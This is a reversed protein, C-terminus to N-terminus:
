YDDANQDEDFALQYLWQEIHAYAVMAHVDAGNPAHSTVTWAFEFMHDHSGFWKQCLFTFYNFTAVWVQPEVAMAQRYTDTAQQRDVSEGLCCRLLYGHAASNDPGMELSM